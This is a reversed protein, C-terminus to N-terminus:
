IQVQEDNIHQEDDMRIEERKISDTSLPPMEVFESLTKKLRDFFEQCEDNNIKNFCKYFHEKNQMIGIIVYLVRKVTFNVLFDPVYTLKVDVNILSTYWCSESDIPEFYQFTKVM